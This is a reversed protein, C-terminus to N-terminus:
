RPADGDDTAGARGNGRVPGPQPRRVSVAQQGARTPAAVGLVGDAFDGVARALEAGREFPAIHGAPELRLLQAGPLERALRGSTEPVIMRDLHGSAVLVPVPVTGIVGRADYRLMALNERAWVVPPTLPNYRTALDLQGRSETGAFGTLMSSLHMSGSLYGLWNQLWALPALLVTLHLLPEFLPRQLLRALPSFTTTRAPNVDTTDVLVLGAVARGLQEPFLRCFTLVAMGGMSHGGLVAPRGSAVSALVAELDRAQKELSHDGDRPGGSRGLGARDWVVVRYRGALGRKLYHWVTGDAAAGHTLVLPPAAAPGYTEVHLESGDPRAIRQVSDAPITRPEDPRAGRFLLVVWRGAFTLVTMLVGVVLYATGVVAGTYWAWLLYAGGGLLALTALAALWGVLLSLPVFLM